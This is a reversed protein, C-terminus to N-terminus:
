GAVFFPCESSPFLPRPCEPAAIRARTRESVQVRQRVTPRQYLWIFQGTLCVYCM